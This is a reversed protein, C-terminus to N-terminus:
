KVHNKRFEAFYNNLSETASQNAHSPVHAGAGGALTPIRAPNGLSEQRAKYAASAAKISELFEYPDKTERNVLKFEPDAETLEKVGNAEMIAKAKSVVYDDPLAGPVSTTAPQVGASPQSAQQASTQGSLATLNSSVIQLVQEATVNIGAERLKKMGKAVVAAQKDTESQQIRRLAETAAVEDADRQVAPQVQNNGVPQNAESGDVPKGAQAQQIMEDNQAM